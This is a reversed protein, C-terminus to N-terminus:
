GHIVEPIRMPERLPNPGSRNPGSAAVVLALLLVCADEILAAAVDGGLRPAAWARWRAGLWSSGIASATAVFTCALRGSVSREPVAGETVSSPEVPLTSTPGAAPSTPGRTGLAEAVREQRVAIILGTSAGLLGRVALPGPRLRGPVWPLKDLVYEQAAIITMLARIPARGLLADPQGKGTAPAVLTLAAMATFSRGGTCAGALASRQYINM